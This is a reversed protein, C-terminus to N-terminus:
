FGQQWKAYNAHDATGVAKEPDLEKRRKHGKAALPRHNLVRLGLNRSRWASTRGTGIEVKEEKIRRFGGLDSWLFDFM